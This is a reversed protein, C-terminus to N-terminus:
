ADLERLSVLVGRDDRMTRTFGLIREDRIESDCGVRSLDFGARKRPRIAGRLVVLEQADFFIQSARRAKRSSLCKMLSSCFRCCLPSTLIPGIHGIPKDLDIAFFRPGSARIIM